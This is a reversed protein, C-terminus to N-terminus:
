KAAAADFNTIIQAVQARNAKGKPDLIGNGKGNIVSTSVAWKLADQAWDSIKDADSFATLDAKEAAPKDQYRWFITAMQERTVPDDTGFVGGGYGELIKKEAAWTVADTYWKGAAVDSFPNEGTVEPEGAMRYLVTAVMARSMAKEPVFATDSEGKFYGNDFCHYVADYYWADEAVDQFPRAPEERLYYTIVGENSTFVLATKGQIEKIEYAGPTVTKAAPNMSIYTGAKKGDSPDDDYAFFTYEATLSAEGAGTFDAYTKGTGDPSLVIYMQANEYGPFASFDCDWTGCLDKRQAATEEGAMEALNEVVFLSIVKQLTDENEESLASSAIASGVWYGYPGDLLNTVDEETGAYRFELHFTTDPTDPFMLLYRFEDEPGEQAQYLNGGMAMEYEGFTGTAAAEKVFAYTHTVSTGDKKTFTVTKGDEGGFTITAVDNTFGCFFNPAEANEGYGTAGISAKLYAVTDEAASAGVVAATYDHWYHDYESNMTAGEFLPQYTGIVQSLFTDEVTYEAAASLDAYNDSTVTVTYTTGVVAADTTAIKGEAVAAKEAIVVPTEGRGVQSQVTAVPNAIDEPLGTVTVTDADEFAATIASGELKVSIDVPCDYIGNLTFFRVNTITKGAVADSGSWGISNVRWLNEIHVLPLKAGDVTAIAGSVNVNEGLATSVASGLDIEVFNNHHTHYEISPTEVVISQAEGNIAGFSYKGDTVTLAKYRAPAESLVYYSYSPAEFLADKGKYETTTEQGRNTVTISVSAEDTIELSADLVSRDTVLVPYIVGTIDSGDPNVHYSGGALGGTRPKNKTASTVADVAPAEEEVEAQYFEAYPINMLVYVPSEEALAAPAMTLMMALALLLSLWRRQKM